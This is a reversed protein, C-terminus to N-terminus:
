PTAAALTEAGGLTAVEVVDDSMARGPALDSQKLQPRKYLASLDQKIDEGTLPHRRIAWM